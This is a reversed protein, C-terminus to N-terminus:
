ESIQKNVADETVEEKDANTNDRNDQEELVKSNAEEKVEEVRIGIDQLEEMLKEPDDKFKKMAKQLRRAKKLKVGETIIRIKRGEHEIVIGNKEIQQINPLLM